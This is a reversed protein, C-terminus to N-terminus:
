SKKTTDNEHGEADPTKPQAKETRKSDVFIFKYAAGLFGITIGAIVLPTLIKNPKKRNM